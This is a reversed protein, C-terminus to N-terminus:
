WLLSPGYCGSTTNRWVFVLLSELVSLLKLSQYRFKLITHTHRCCTTSNPRFCPGFLWPCSNLVLDILSGLINIILTGYLAKIERFKFKASLQRCLKQQIFKTTGNRYPRASMPTPFKRQIIKASATTDAFVAFILYWSILASYPLDWWTLWITYCVWRPVFCPVTSGWRVFVGM